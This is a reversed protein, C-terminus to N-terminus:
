LHFQSVYEYVILHTLSIIDSIHFITLFNAYICLSERIVINCEIEVICNSQSLELGFGLSHGARVLLTSHFIHNKGSKEHPPRLLQMKICPGYRLFFNEFNKLGLDLM